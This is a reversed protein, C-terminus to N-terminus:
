SDVYLDDQSLCLFMIYHMPRYTPHSLVRGFAFRVFRHEDSAFKFDLLNTVAMHYHHCPRIRRHGIAGTIHAFKSRLNQSPRQLLVTTTFARVPTTKM